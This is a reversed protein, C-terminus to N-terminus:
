RLERRVITFAKLGRSRLERALDEAAKQVCDCVTRGAFGCGPLDVLSCKFSSGSAYSHIGGLFYNVGFYTMM